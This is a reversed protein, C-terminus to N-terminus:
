REGGAIRKGCIPCHQWLKNIEIGCCFRNVTKERKKGCMPCYIYRKRPSKPTAQEISDCYVCGDERKM